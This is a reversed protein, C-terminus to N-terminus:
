WHKKGTYWVVESGVPPKRGEEVFFRRSVVNVLTFLVGDRRRCVSLKAQSCM